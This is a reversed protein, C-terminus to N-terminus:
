ARRGGKKSGQVRKGLALIGHDNERQLGRGWSKKGKKGEGVFFPKEDGLQLRLAKLGPKGYLVFLLEAL